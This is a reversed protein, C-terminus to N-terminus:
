PSMDSAPYSIETKPFWSNSLPGSSSAVARVDASKSHMQGVEGHRVRGQVPQARGEEDLVVVPERDPVEGEDGFAEGVERAGPVDGQASAVHLGRRARHTFEAVAAGVDDHRDRVDTQVHVRLQRTLDRADVDDEATVRVAVHVLRDADAVREDDGPALPARM